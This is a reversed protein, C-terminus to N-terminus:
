KRAMRGKMFGPLIGRAKRDAASAAASRKRARTTLADHQRLIVRAVNPPIVIRTSGSDDVYEVFVYEQSVANDGDGEERRRFTQIIFTQAEGTMPTTARITTASTSLVGPIGVLSGLTRDFRNNRNNQPVAVNEM